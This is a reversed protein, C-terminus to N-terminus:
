RIRRAGFNPKSAILIWSLGVPLEAGPPRLLRAELRLLSTLLSNTRNTGRSHARVDSGPAALGAKKLLRWVVAVPFLIFNAATIRQPRFGAAAILSLLERKRYRHTIRIQEDHSSRLWEFCV